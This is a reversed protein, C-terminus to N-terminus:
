RTETRVRATCPTDFLVSVEGFFEGEHLTALTEEGDSSLINVRGEEILFIGKAADGPPYFIIHKVNTVHM